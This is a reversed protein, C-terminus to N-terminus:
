ENKEGGSPSTQAPASGIDQDKLSHLEEMEMFLNRGRARIVCKSHFGVLLHSGM